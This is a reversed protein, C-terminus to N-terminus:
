PRDSLEDDAVVGARDVVLAKLQMAKEHNMGPVTLGDGATRMPLTALGFYRALPGRDISVHQVRAFPVTTVNRSLVGRRYSFDKDRVLYGLHDVELRQLWAALVTLALLIVAGLSPLWWPLFFLLVAATLVVVAAFIADGILRLRLFNPDLPEFREEDLRPLASVDLPDNVFGPEGATEQPEQLSDVM